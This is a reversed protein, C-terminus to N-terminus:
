KGCENPVTKYDFPTRYDQSFRSVDELLPLDQGFYDDLVVRFSNVPSISPYLRATGKPLYYANLIPARIFRDRVLPGHDGQIIIIPPIQSKELIARVVELIQRDIFEAQGSYLAAMEEPPLNKEDHAGFAVDHFNGQADFIYPPHPSVIHAFVFKPGPLAPLEKLTKLTLLTRDRYNEASLDIKPLIGADVFASWLTTDLLQAEFESGKPSAPQYYYDADTLETMRFGTAFAATKYGRKELFRRIASNGIDAQVNVKGNADMLDDLYAYNLSSSLSLLTLSYNSQSCDAVYFGLENLSALFASSDYNSHQKLIDARGHADLVIYYIDPEHASPSAAETEVASERGPRAGARAEAGASVLTQALPMVVLALTVLNLTSTVKALPLPKRWFIWAGGAGILTWAALLTRHRFIVLGGPRVGELLNYLHGYSFFLIVFLTATLGARRWDRTLLRLLLLLILALALSMWLPRVVVGPTVENLNFALLALPAYAAAFFVHLPVETWIKKIGAPKM